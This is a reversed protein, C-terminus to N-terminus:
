IRDSWNKACAMAADTHENLDAYTCTPALPCAMLHDMTQRNGCECTDTSTM